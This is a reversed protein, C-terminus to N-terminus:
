MFQLEPQHLNTRELEMAYDNARGRCRSFAVDHLWFDNFGRDLWDVGVGFSADVLSTTLVLFLWQSIYKLYMLLMDQQVVEDEEVENELIHKIGEVAALCLVTSDSTNARILAVTMFPPIAIIGNTVSLRDAQTNLYQFTCDRLNDITFLLLEEWRPVSFCDYNGSVLLEIASAERGLGQLAFLIHTHLPRENMNDTGEEEVHLLQYILSAKDGCDYAIHHIVHVPSM